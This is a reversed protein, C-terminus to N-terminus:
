GIDVAHVNNPSYCAAFLVSFHSCSCGHTYHFHVSKYDSVTDVIITNKHLVVYSWTVRYNAFTCMNM